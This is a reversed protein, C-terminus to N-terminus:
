KGNAPFNTDNIGLDHRIRYGEIKLACLCLSTSISNRLDPAGNSLFPPVKNKMAEYINPLMKELASPIRDVSESVEEVILGLAEICRKSEVTFRHLYIAMARMISLLKKNAGKWKIKLEDSIAKSFYGLRRHLEMYLHISLEILTSSFLLSSRVERFMQVYNAKVPDGEKDPKLKLLKTAFEWRMVGQYHGSVWTKPEMGLIHRYHPVAPQEDVAKDTDDDYVYYGAGGDGGKDHWFTSNKRITEQQAVALALLGFIEDNGSYKFANFCAASSPPLYSKQSRDKTEINNALHAFLVCFAQHQHEPLIGVLKTQIWNYLQQFKAPLENSQFWDDQHSEVSSFYLGVEEVSTFFIPADSDSSQSQNDEDKQQDTSNAIEANPPSSNKKGAEAQLDDGINNGKREATQKEDSNEGSSKEDFM